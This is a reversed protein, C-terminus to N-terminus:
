IKGGVLLKLANIVHPVEDELIFVVTGDSETVLVDGDQDLELKTYFGDEPHEPHQYSDEIVYYADDNHVLVKM